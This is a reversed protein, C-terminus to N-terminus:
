GTEKQIIGKYTIPVKPFICLKGKGVSVVVSKHTKGGTRGGDEAETRIQDQSDTQVPIEELIM